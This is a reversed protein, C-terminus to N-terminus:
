ESESEVIEIGCLVANHGFANGKAKVIFNGIGHDWGSWKRWFAQYPSGVWDVIKFGSWVNTGNLSVDMITNDAYPSELRLFHLTVDYKGPSLPISYEISNPYANSVFSNYVRMPADGLGTIEQDPDGYNTAGGYNYTDPLWDGVQDDCGCNIRLSFLTSPQEYFADVVDQVDDEDAAVALSYNVAYNTRITVGTQQMPGIQRICAGLLLVLQGPPDAETDGFDFILTGEAPCDTGHLLVFRGADSLAAFRRSATFSYSGSRNARSFFKTAAARIGASPQVAISVSIEARAPGRVNDDARDAGDALVVDSNADTAGKPRLTIKM